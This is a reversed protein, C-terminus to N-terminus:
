TRRTRELREMRIPAKPALMMERGPGSWEFNGPGLRFNFRGAQRLVESARGTTVVVDRFRGNSYVRLTARAGPTLKQVERTLRHSSLGNTYADEV